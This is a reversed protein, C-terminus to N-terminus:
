FKKEGHEMWRLRSRIFAGKAKSKYINDLQIQLKSLEITDQPSLQTQKSLTIIKTVTEVELKQRKKATVKSIHIALKRIEYKMLEWSLCANKSVRAQRWFKTIIDKTERVFNDDELLCKNFKWYNKSIKENCVDKVSIKISIAKHDSLVFPDISVTQVKEGIDSSILWFDIRSQQSFTSNSWTFMKQDPNNKRWIDLMDLRLCINQLDNAQTNSKPPFRDVEDNLSTNFDGGWIIKGFPFKVLYQNIKTEIKFFIASNQQKNNSAYINILILHTDAIEVVLIIWRGEDDKEFKIIQGKFEGLLIAVGASKNNGHSFWIDKGWQSKWFMVDEVNSHTEQVFYFDHRKNTCYLFVSKRKLMNRLGRANFSFLSISM